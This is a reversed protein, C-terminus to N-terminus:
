INKYERSSYKLSFGTKAVQSDTIFRVILYNNYSRFRTPFTLTGSLRGVSTATAETKGGM